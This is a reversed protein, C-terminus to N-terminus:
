GHVNCFGIKGGYKINISTRPPVTGIKTHIFGFLGLRHTQEPVSYKTKPTTDVPMERWGSGFVESSCFLLTSERGSWLSVPKTQIFTLSNPPPQIHVSPHQFFHEYVHESGGGFYWAPTSSQTICLGALHSCFASVM